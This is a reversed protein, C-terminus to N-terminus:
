PMVAIEGTFGGDCFYRDSNGIMDANTTVEELMCFIQGDPSSVVRTNTDFTQHHQSFKCPTLVGSGRIDGATTQDKM